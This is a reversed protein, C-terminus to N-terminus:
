TRRLSRAATRSLDYSVKAGEALSSLGAKEVASIHVFVDKCGSDPQIFGYGRRRMSGSLRVWRWTRVGGKLVLVAALIPRATSQLCFEGANSPLARSPPGYDHMVPQAVLKRHKWNPSITTTARPTSV